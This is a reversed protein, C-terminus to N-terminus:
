PKHNVWIDVTSFLSSDAALSLFEVLMSPLASNKQQSDMIMNYKPISKKYGLQELIEIATLNYTYKM